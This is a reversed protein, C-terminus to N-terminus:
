SANVNGQAYKALFGNPYNSFLANQERKIDETFISDSDM